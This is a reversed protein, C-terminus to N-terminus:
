PTLQAPEFPTKRENMRASLAACLRDSEEPAILTLFAYDSLSKVLQHGVVPLPVPDIELEAYDLVDKM